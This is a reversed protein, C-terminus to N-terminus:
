IILMGVELSYSALDCSAIIKQGPQHLLYLNPIVRRLAVILDQGILYM